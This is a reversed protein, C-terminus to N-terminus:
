FIAGLKDVKASVLREIDRCYFYPDKPNYFVGAMEQRSDVFKSAAGGGLGIITQREEIMQVNYRCIHGPLAYGINEMDDRIYKQRYLYYPQYGAERFMKEYHRVAKEVQGGGLQLGEMGRDIAMPSGRKVALSHVTINEPRLRILCQCNYECDDQGEGPLGAILDMNITRFGIKRAEDVARVAQEATHRRGIRLLTRDQMTQPNICLREVGADKMIKMKSPNLTDARGAEVSIEGQGAGPIHQWLKEFLTQLDEEELITPTGGGIYINEARREQQRLCAGVVSIEHYLCALYAPMENEYNKLVAGPFSCYVCRSPCYPMGVYLSFVRAGSSAPESAAEQGMTLFPRSTRAVEALLSSKEEDVLYQRQLAGELMGPDELNDLLRQAAKVPRMGTLLGYQSINRGSYRCLLKYVFVRMARRLEDNVWPAKEDERAILGQCPEEELLLVGNADEIEAKFKPAAGGTDLTLGLRLDAEDPSDRKVSWGKFALRVLEHIGNYYNGPEIELNLKM